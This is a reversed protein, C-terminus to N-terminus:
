GWFVRRSSRVDLITLSHIQTKIWLMKSLENYCCYLISVFQKIIRRSIYVLAIELKPCNHIINSLVNKCLVKEPFIWKDQPPPMWSHFKQTKFYNHTWRILLQCNGLTIAGNWARVLQNVDGCINPLKLNKLFKLYKSLHTTTDIQLKLNANRKHSINKLM